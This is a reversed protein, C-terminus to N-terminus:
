VPLLLVIRVPKGPEHDRRMLGLQELKRVARRASKHRDARTGIIRGVDALTPEYGNTVMACLMGYVAVDRHTMEGSEIRPQLALFPNV